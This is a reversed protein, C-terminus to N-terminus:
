LEDLQNAGFYFHAGFRCRIWSMLKINVGLNSLRSNM